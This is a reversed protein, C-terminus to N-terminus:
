AEITIRVGAETAPFSGIDHLKQLLPVVTKASREAGHNFHYIIGGPMHAICIQLGHSFIQFGKRGYIFATCCGVTITVGFRLLQHVQVEAFGARLHIVFIAGIAM